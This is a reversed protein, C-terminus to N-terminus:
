RKNKDYRRYENGRSLLHTNLRHLKHREVHRGRPMHAGVEVAIGAGQHLHREGLASHELTIYDRRRLVARAFVPDVHNGARALQHHLVRRGLGEVHLEGVVAHLREEGFGGVAEVDDHGRGGARHLLLYLDVEGGGRGDHQNVALYDFGGIPTGGGGEGGVAVVGVGDGGLAVDALLAGEVKM